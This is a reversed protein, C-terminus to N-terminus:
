NKLEYTKLVLEKYAQILPEFPQEDELNTPFAFNETVDQFVFNILTDSIYYATIVLSTLTKPYSNENEELALALKFTINPEGQANFQAKLQFFEIPENNEDLLRVYPETPEQNFQKRYLKELLGLDTALAIQLQRIQERLLARRQSLKNTYQSYQKCLDQYTLTTM